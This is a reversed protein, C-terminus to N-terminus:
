NSKDNSSKPPVIDIISRKAEIDRQKVIDLLYGISNNHLDLTTSMGSILEAIKADVTESKKFGNQVDLNLRSMKVDNVDFKMDLDDVRNHLESLSKVVVADDFLFKLIKTRIKQKLDWLYIQVELLATELTMRITTTWKKSM